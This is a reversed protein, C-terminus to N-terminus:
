IFMTLEDDGLINEEYDKYDFLLLGVGQRFRIQIIHKLYMKSTVCNIVFCILSRLDEIDIDLIRQRDHFFGQSPCVIKLNYM